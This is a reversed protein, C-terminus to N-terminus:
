WKYRIGLNGGLAIHWDREYATKNYVIIPSLTKAQEYDLGKTHLSLFDCAFALAVAFHKAIDKSLYLQYRAGFNEFVRLNNAKGLTRLLQYAMIETNSEWARRKFIRCGFGYGYHWFPRAPYARIGIHALTYFYPTGSRITLTTALTEQIALEINKYGGHRVINVLGIQKLHNASDAYNFLGIQWANQIKGAVNLLGAVQVGEARGWAVNMMGAVQVGRLNKYNFNALGGIQWANQTKGAVNLLGAVQVGEVRGWAVNMMGAVQVGRLNKYNFNALGGM